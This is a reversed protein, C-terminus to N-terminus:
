KYRLGNCSVVGRRFFRPTTDQQTVDHQELHVWIDNTCKFYMEAENETENPDESKKVIFVLLAPEGEVERIETTVEEIERDDIAQKISSLSMNSPFGEYVDLGFGSGSISYSKGEYSLMFGKSTTLSKSCPCTDNYSMTIKFMGQELSFIENMEEIVEEFSANYPKKEITPTPSIIPTPTPQEQPEGTSICGFLLILAAAALMWKKMYDSLVFYTM